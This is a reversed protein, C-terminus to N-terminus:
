YIAGIIVAITGASVLFTYIQYIMFPQKAEVKGGPTAKEAESMGESYKQGSVLANSSWVWGTFSTTVGVFAVLLRSADSAEAIDGFIIIAVVAITSVIFVTAMTFQHRQTSVLRDQFQEMIYYRETTLDSGTDALTTKGLRRQWNTSLNHASAAM